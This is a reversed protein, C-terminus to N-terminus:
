LVSRVYFFIPIIAFLLPVAVAFIKGVTLVIPTYKKHVLGLTQFASQFGHSLHFALLLMAIAYFIVIEPRQFSNNVVETMSLAKVKEVGNSKLLEFKKEDLYSNKEIMVEQNLQTDIFPGHADKVKWSQSYVTEIPIGEIGQGYKYFGWFMVLHVILFALFITGTVGMNRSFWSSSNGMGKKFAYKQPRARNNQWSLRIAYVIHFIFGAFLVWEMIKVVPNTTMFKTYENFSLGGDDKFLLLNGSLHVVLFSVLFLGTLGMILKQGISSSLFTKSSPM